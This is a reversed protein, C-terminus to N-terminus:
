KQKIKKVSKKNKYSISKKFYKKYLYISDVLKPFKRITKNRKKRIMYIFNSNIDIFVM